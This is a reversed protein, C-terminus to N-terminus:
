SCPKVVTPHKDISTGPRGTCFIDDVRWGAALHKLTLTMRSPTGYHRITRVVASSGTNSVVRYTSSQPFNQCRCVPDYGGAPFRRQFRFNQRISKRLRTTIPCGPGIYPPTGKACPNGRGAGVASMVIRAAKLPTGPTGPSSSHGHYGGPNGGYSLSPSSGCAALLMGVLALTVPTGLRMLPVHM